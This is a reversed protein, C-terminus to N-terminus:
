RGQCRVQKEMQKDTKRGAYSERKMGLKRKGTWRLPRGKRGNRQSVSVSRFTGKETM